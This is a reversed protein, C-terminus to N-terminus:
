RSRKRLMLALLGAGAVAFPIAFFFIAAASLASWWAITENLWQTMM